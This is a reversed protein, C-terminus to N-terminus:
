SLNMNEDRLDFVNKNRKIRDKIYLVIVLCL